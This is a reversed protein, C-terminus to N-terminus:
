AAAVEPEGRLRLVFAEDLPRLTGHMCSLPFLPLAKKEQKGKRDFDAM